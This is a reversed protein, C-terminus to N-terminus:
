LEPGPHSAYPRLKGAQPPSTKAWDHAQVPGDAYRKMTMTKFRRVLDM